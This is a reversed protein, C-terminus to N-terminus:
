QLWISLFSRSSHTVNSSFSSTRKWSRRYWFSGMFARIFLLITIPSRSTRFCRLSFFTLHTMMEGFQSRMWDLPVKLCDSTKMRNIKHSYILFFYPSHKINNTCWLFRLIKHTIKSVKKQVINLCWKKHNAPIKSFSM